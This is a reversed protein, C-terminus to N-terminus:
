AGMQWDWKQRENNNKSTNLPWGRFLSVRSYKVLCAYIVNETHNQVKSREHKLDTLVTLLYFM